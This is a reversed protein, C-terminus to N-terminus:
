ATPKRRPTKPPTVRRLRAVGGFIYQDGRGVAWLATPLPSLPPHPWKVGERSGRVAYSRVFSFLALAKGDDDREPGASPGVGGPDEKGVVQLAM